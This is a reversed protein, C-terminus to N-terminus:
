YFESGSLIRWKIPPHPCPFWYCVSYFLDPEVGDEDSGVSHVKSINNLGVLDWKKMQLTPTTTITTITSM